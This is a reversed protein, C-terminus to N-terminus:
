PMVCPQISSRSFSGLGFCSFAARRSFLMCVFVSSVILCCTAAKGICVQLDLRQLELPLPTDSRLTPIPRPNRHQLRHLLELHSSSTSSILNFPHIRHVQRGHISHNLPGISSNYWIRHVWGHKFKRWNSSITLHALLISNYSTRLQEDMTMSALIIKHRNTSFKAPDGDFPDGDFASRLDALWNNFQAVNSNYCLRIIDSVNFKLGKRYAVTQPCDSDAESGDNFSLIHSDSPPQPSLFSTAISPPNPTNEQSHVFLQFGRIIRYHQSMRSNRWM